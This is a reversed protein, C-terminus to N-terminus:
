QPLKRQLASRLAKVTGLSRSLSKICRGIEEASANLEGEAVRTALQEFQMASGELTTTAHDVDGWLKITPSNGAVGMKTRATSVSRANIKLKSAIEVNTLGHGMLRLVDANRADHDIRPPPKKREPKDGRIVADLKEPASKALKLSREMTSRSVGAKAALAASTKGSDAPRAEHSAAGTVEAFAGREARPQAKAKEGRAKNAARQRDDRETQWTTSELTLKALIAAKQGPSLDRRLGNRRWSEAYPDISEPVDRFVPEVNAIAAARLRNRGDLIAGAYRLIPETPDFGMELMSEVLPALDQDSLMPFLEAAPHAVPERPMASVACVM